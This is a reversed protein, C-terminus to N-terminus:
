DSFLPHFPSTPKFIALIGELLTIICNDTVWSQCAKINELRTWFSGNSHKLEALMKNQKNRMVM